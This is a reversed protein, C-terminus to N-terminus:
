GAHRQTGLEAATLPEASISLYQQLTLREDLVLWRVADSLTTRRSRVTVGVTAAPAFVESRVPLAAANIKALAHRVVVAEFEPVDALAVTSGMGAGLRILMRAMRNSWRDLGAATLDCGGLSAVVADHHAPVAPLETVTTARTPSTQQAPM